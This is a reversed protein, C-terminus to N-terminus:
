SPRIARAQRAIFTFGAETADRELAAAQSPDVRSWVLRADLSWTVLGLRDADARAKKLREIAAARRGQAAEVEARVVSLHIAQEKVVGAKVQVDWTGPGLDWTGLGLDWSGPGM